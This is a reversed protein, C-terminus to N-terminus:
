SMDLIIIQIPHDSTFFAWGTLSDYQSSLSVVNLIEHKEKLESPLESTEPYSDM